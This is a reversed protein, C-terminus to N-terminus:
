RAFLRWRAARQEKFCQELLEPAQFFFMSIKMFNKGFITWFHISCKFKWSIREFFHNLFPHFHLDPPTKSGRPPAQPPEQAWSPAWSRWSSAGSLGQHGDQAMKVSKHALKPRFHPGFDISFQHFISAFITWNESHKKSATKSPNPLWFHGFLSALISSFIMFFVCPRFM